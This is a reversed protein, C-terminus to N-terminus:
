CQGSAVRSPDVAKADEAASAAASHLLTQLHSINTEVEAAAIACYKICSKNTFCLRGWSIIGLSIPNHKSENSSKTSPRACHLNRLSSQKYAETCFHRGPMKNTALDLSATNFCSVQVWNPNRLWCQEGQQQAFVAAATCCTTCFHGVNNSTPPTLYSAPPSTIPRAPPVLQQILLEQLGRCVWRGRYGGQYIRLTYVNHKHRM